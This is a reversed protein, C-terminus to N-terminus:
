VQQRRIYSKHAQFLRLKLVLSPSYTRTFTIEPDFSRISAKDTRTKTVIPIGKINNALKM